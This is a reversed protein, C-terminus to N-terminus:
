FRLRLMSNELILCLPLSFLLIPKTFKFFLRWSEAEDTHVTRACFSHHIVIYLTSIRFNFSHPMNQFLFPNFTKLTLCAVTFCQRSLGLIHFFFFFVVSFLFSQLLQIDSSLCSSGNTFICM